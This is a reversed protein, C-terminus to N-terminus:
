RRGRRRAALLYMLAALVAAASLIPIAVGVPLSTSSTASAPLQGGGPPTYLEASRMNGLFSGGMVLVSGSKLLVAIPGARAVQMDATTSWRNAAPDYLDASASVWAPGYGGAVLVLGSPLLTASSGERAQPMAGALSWQNKAPDFLQPEAFRTCAMSPREACGGLVLVKGDPLLTATHPVRPPELLGAAASWRNSKPDYFAAANGGGVILVRGDPLLTGTNGQDGLAVPMDAAPSWRNSTPDYIEASALYVDAGNAQPTSLGGAVLVRGDSLRTATHGWRKVLVSGAPSWSDSAPDYLTAGEGVVLVRGSRLLTATSGVAVISEPSAVLRSRGSAPEYIAAVVTSTPTAPHFESNPGTGVLLVRGDALASATATSTFGGGYASYNGFPGAVDPMSTWAGAADPSQSPSPASAAVKPDFVQVDATSWQGFVFDPWASVFVRGDKLLIASEDLSSAKLGGPMVTWTRSAPDFREASTLPSGTVGQGGVVLVSGDDLRMAAAGSRAQNLSGTTLWTRASPDFVEASTTPKGADGGGAAVALGNGLASLAASQYGNASIEGAPAWANTAPDYIEVSTTFPLPGGASVLGGAVVVRGDALLVSQPNIHRSLPPAALTWSNSAPDYLQALSRPQLNVDRPGGYGGALLVKGSRLLTTTYGGANPVPIAGAASVTDTRPDYLQPGYRDCDAGTLMVRGDALLTAAMGGDRQIAAPTWRDTAPDYIQAQSTRQAETSVTVLVRGDALLTASHGAPPACAARAVLGGSGLVVESAVV